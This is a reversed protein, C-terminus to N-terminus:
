HWTRTRGARSNAYRIERCKLAKHRVQCQWDCSPLRNGHEPWREGKGICAGLAAPRGFVKHKHGSLPRNFPGRREALELWRARRKFRRVVKHRSRALAAGILVGGTDRQLVAQKRSNGAIGAKGRRRGVRTDVCMAELTPLPAGRREPSQTLSHARRSRNM